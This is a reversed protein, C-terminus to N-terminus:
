MSIRRIVTKRTAHKHRPTVCKEVRIVHIKSGHREYEERSFVWKHGKPQKQGKKGTLPVGCRLRRPRPLGPQPGAM